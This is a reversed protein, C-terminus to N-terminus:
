KIVQEEFGKVFVTNAMANKSSPHIFFVKVVAEDPVYLPVVQGDIENTELEIGNWTNEVALPRAITGNKKSSSSDDIGVAALKNEEEHSAQEEIQNLVTEIVTFGTTKPQM